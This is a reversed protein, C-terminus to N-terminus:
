AYGSNPKFMGPHTIGNRDKASMWSMMGFADNSPCKDPIM